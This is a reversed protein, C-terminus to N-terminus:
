RKAISHVRQLRPEAHYRWSHYERRIQELADLREKIPRTQWYAFDNHPQLLAIRTFTAAIKHKEAM